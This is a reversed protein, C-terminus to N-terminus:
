EAHSATIFLIVNDSEFKQNVILHNSLCAVMVHLNKTFEHMTIHIGNIMIIKQICIFKISLEAISIIVRIKTDTHIRIKM